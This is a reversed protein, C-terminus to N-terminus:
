QKSKRVTIEVWNRTRANSLIEVKVIEGPRIISSTTTASASPQRDNNPGVYEALHFTADVIVSGDKTARVMLRVDRAEPFKTNLPGDGVSLSIQQGSKTQTRTSSLPKPKEDPDGRYMATEIEFDQANAVSAVVLVYAVAIIRRSM